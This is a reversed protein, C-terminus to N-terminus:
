LKQKASPRMISMGTFVMHIYGHKQWRTDYIMRTYCDNPLGLYEIILKVGAGVGKSFKEHFVKVESKLQKVTTIDDEEEKKAFICCKM